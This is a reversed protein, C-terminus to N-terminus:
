GPASYGAIFITKLGTVTGGSDYFQKTGVGVLGTVQDHSAINGTKTTVINVTPWQHKDVDRPLSTSPVATIKTKAM